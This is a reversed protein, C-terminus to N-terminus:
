AAHSLIRDLAIEAEADLLAHEDDYRNRVMLEYAHHVTPRLAYICKGDRVVNYQLLVPVDQLVVMDIEGYEIPLAERFARHLRLKLAHREEKSLTPDALVAIDLDSEIDANGRAHSGFLYALQVPHVRSVRELAQTLGTRFLPAAM